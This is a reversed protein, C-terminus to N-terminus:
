DNAIVGLIFEFHERDANYFEEMLEPTAFREVGM